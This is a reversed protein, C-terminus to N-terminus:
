VLKRIRQNLKLNIKGFFYLMFTTVGIGFFYIILNIKSNTLKSFRYRLFCSSSYLMLNEKNLKKFTKFDLFGSYISFHLILNNLFIYYSNSKSESALYTELHAMWNLYLDSKIKLKKILDLKNNDSYKMRTLSDQNSNIKLLTKDIIIVSDCRSMILVVSMNDEHQRFTESFSVPFFVRKKIIRSCLSVFDHKFLFFDNLYDTGQIIKNQEYAKNWRKEGTEDIITFEILDVKMSEDLNLFFSFPNDVYEDDADFFLIFDSKANEVATKRALSLGKNESHKVLRLQKYSKIYENVISVSNDTSGDDVFLVEVEDVLYNRFSEICRNLFKEANYFCICLTLKTQKNGESM